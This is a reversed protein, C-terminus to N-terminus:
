GGHGRAADIRAAKAQDVWWSSFETGSRVKQTPYGFRDWYAIWEQDLYFEPVLLWSWLLVRDLARTAAVLQPKDQATVIKGILADVVPSCEGMLNGSGESAAAKCSWSDYQENGPSESEGFIVETMDFDFSDMRHQYQSPDVTRVHMDIGLRGLQQAYPLAIREFRPDDLLLEFSFKEGSANVMEHNKLSWGAARLLEYARKLGAPNNGSGDTKALTFPQTFLAAPLQARYPELLALEDGQPLGSAAFDSDAFYSATRTYLGYFLNKNAWEFDFVQALAERVRVDQFLKRRLNMGFGQMPTIEHV